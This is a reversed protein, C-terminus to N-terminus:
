KRIYLFLNKDAPRDTQINNYMEDTKLRPWGFKAPHYFTERLLNNNPNQATVTMRFCFTSGKLLQNIFNYQITYLLVLILTIGGIKHFLCYCILEINQYWLYLFNGNHLLYIEESFLHTYSYINFFSNFCFKYM